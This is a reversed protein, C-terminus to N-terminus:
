MKPPCLRERRLKNLSNSQATQELLATSLWSDLWLTPRRCGVLDRVCTRVIPVYKFDKNRTAYVGCNDHPHAHTHTHPPPDSFDGLDGGGGFLIGICSPLWAPEKMPNRHLRPAIEPSLFLVRLEFELIRIRPEGAEPSLISFKSNHSPLISPHWAVRPAKLHTMTCSAATLSFLTPVPPAMWPVLIALFTLSPPM